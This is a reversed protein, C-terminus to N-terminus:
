KQAQTGETAKSVAASVSSAVASAAEEVEEKAATAAATAEKMVAAAGEKAATAASAAGEKAAAVVDGAGGGGGGEAKGAAKKEAAKDKEEKEQLQKQRYEGVLKQLHTSNNPDLVVWVENRRMFPLINPHHYEALCWTLVTDFKLDAAAAAAAAATSDASAAAAPTEEATGTAKEGSKNEAAASKTGGEAAASEAASPKSETPAAAPGKGAPTEVGLTKAAEGNDLVVDTILMNHLKRLKKMTHDCSYSGNFRYVAVFRLPVEKVAIRGDTPTPIQSVETFSDPLILQM